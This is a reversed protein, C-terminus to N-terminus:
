HGGCGTGAQAIGAQCATLRHNSGLGSLPKRLSIFDEIILCSSFCCFPDRASHVPHWADIDESAFRGPRSPRPRQAKWGRSAFAGAATPHPRPAAGSVGSNGLHLPLPVSTSLSGPPVHPKTGWGTPVLSGAGYQRPRRGKLTCVRLCAGGVGLHRAPDWESRM